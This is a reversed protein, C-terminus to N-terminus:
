QLVLGAPSFFFVVVFVGLAGGARVATGVAVTLFGPVMAAVGAAALALVIRFVTYQFATPSPVVVALTLLVVVFVCGFGFAAVQQQGKTM